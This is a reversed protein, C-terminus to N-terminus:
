PAAPPEPANPSVSKLYSLIDAREQGAPVGAFAMTTGPAWGRPNLIFASVEEYGWQGGKGKLANSYGFGPHAAIPRGLVGALNPGVKNPGGQEFTHCAACKRVAAQGRGVDAKALLIPLPEQAAAQQTGAAPQEVPVPLAYGAEGARRPSFLGGAITNLGLVFLLSGLVAGAIKNLEFSDM